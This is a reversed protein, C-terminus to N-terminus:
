QVKQFTLNPSQGAPNCDPALFLFFVLTFIHPFSGKLPSTVFTVQSYVFKEISSPYIIINLHKIPNAHTQSSLMKLFCHKNTLM